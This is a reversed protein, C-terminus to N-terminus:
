VPFFGYRGFLSNKTFHTYTILARIDAPPETNELVIVQDDTTNLALNRYFANKIEDSVNGESGEDRGRLPNLPTDLVVFGTHPIGKRRCYRMLAITFAAHTLARYGKGLSGRDRSGLVIDFREPDFALASFPM